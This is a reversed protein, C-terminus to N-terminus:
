LARVRIWTTRSEGSNPDRVTLRHEGEQATAFVRGDVVAVKLTPSEWVLRAGGTALLPISASSPV